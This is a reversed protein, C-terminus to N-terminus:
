SYKEIGVSIKAPEDVIDKWFNLEIIKCGSKDLHNWDSRVATMRGQVDYLCVVVKRNTVGKVTPDYHVEFRVDVEYRGGDYEEFKFVCSQHKIKIAYENPLIEFPIELYKPEKKIKAVRAKPTPQFQEKAQMETRKQQEQEQNKQREIYSLLKNYQETGDMAIVTQTAKDTYSVRFTAKVGLMRKRKGFYARGRGSTGISFGTHEFGEKYVREQSILEVHVINNLQKEQEKKRLIKVFVAVLFSLAFITAGMPTFLYVVFLIIIAAIIASM